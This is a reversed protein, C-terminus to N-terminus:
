IPFKKVFSKGAFNTLFRSFAFSVWSKKEKELEFVYLFYQKRNKEGKDFGKIKNREFYILGFM